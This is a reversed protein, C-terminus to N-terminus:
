LREQQALVDLGMEPTCVQHGSGREGGPASGRGRPQRGAGRRTRKRLSGVREGSVLMDM